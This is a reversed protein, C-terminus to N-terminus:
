GELTSSGLGKWRKQYLVKEQRQYHDDDKSNVQSSQLLFDLQCLVYCQFFVYFVPAFPDGSLILSQNASPPQPLPIPCSNLETRCYSLCQLHAPSCDGLSAVCPIRVEVVRGMERPQFCQSVLGFSKLFASSEWCYQGAVSFILIMGIIVTQFGLAHM